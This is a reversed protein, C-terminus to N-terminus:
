FLEHMHEHGIGPGLAPEQDQFRVSAQADLSRLLHLRALDLYQLGLGQVRAFVQRAGDYMVDVAAALVQDDGVGRLFAVELMVGVYLVM